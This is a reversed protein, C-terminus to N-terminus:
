QIAERIRASLLDMLWVVLFILFAITGVQTWAALGQAQVLLGGIGGGGVLGIITAMRVNIDWRYITFALYPLVVQPVVAYWVTAVRSAGTAAIAELPGEDVSEVAESYQKILSSVSHIMLAISGAFPGIGVWVSFLIAWILPEISRSVNIYTRVVMYVGRMFASHRTLNRAALFSLVFAIPIAFITAMFALYVSETLKVVAVSFYTEDTPHCTLDYAGITEWGFLSSFWNGVVVIHNIFWQFVEFLSGGFKLVEYGFLNLSQAGVGPIGCSIQLTLRGAGSLGAANFMENLSVKTVIWGTIITAILVLAAEKRAFSWHKKIRLSDEPSNVQLKSLSAVWHGFGKGTLGVVFGVLSGVGFLIALVSWPYDLSRTDLGTYSIFNVAWDAPPDNYAFDEIFPLIMAGFVIRGLVVFFYGWTFIEIILGTIERSRRESEVLPVFQPIKMM